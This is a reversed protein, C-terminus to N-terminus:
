YLEVRLGSLLPDGFFLVLLLFFEGHVIGNAVPFLRIFFLGLFFFFDTPPLFSCGGVDICEAATSVITPPTPSASFFHIKGVADETCRSARYTKMNPRNHQGVCM